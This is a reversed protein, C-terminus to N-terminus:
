HLNEAVHIVLYCVGAGGTVVWILKKTTHVYLQIIMFWIKFILFIDFVLILEETDIEM